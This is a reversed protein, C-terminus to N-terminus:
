PKTIQSPPVPDSDPPVPSKKLYFVLGVFAGSLASIGIHKWGAVTGQLNSSVIDSLSNVAGGVVAAALGKLWIETTSLAM